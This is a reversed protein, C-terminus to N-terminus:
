NSMLDYAKQATCMAAQAGMQTTSIAAVANGFRLAESEAMDMAKAYAFGANFSDGAATTDIARVLFGPARLVQDSVLMAGRKGMKAIVAKAGRSLLIRAARETSADDNASQSTFFSLETENPTIYDVCRILEDPMPAAPAPDLIITKGADCLRKALLVVTDIPIELQFLFIDCLSIKEFVADAFARDACLNAGPAVAIRNDGSSQDVEILAVGTPADKTLMVADTNVGERRLVELYMRGNADDGLMGSMMVDAGLRALAVAQNGGKGGTFTQFDSGTISEGPLHFRPITITLDINLSGIVCLKKM